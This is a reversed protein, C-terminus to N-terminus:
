LGQWIDKYKDKLFPLIEQRPVVVTMPDLMDAQCTACYFAMGERTLYVGSDYDSPDRWRHTFENHFDEPNAKIKTDLLKVLKDLMTPNLMSLTEIPNADPGYTYFDYIYMDHMGGTYTGGWNNLCTYKGNLMVRIKTDVHYGFCQGWSEEEERIDALRDSLYRSVASTIDLSANEKWVLESKIISEIYRNLKDVRAGSGKFVPYVLKVYCKDLAKRDVISVDYALETTKLTNKSAKDVAMRLRRRAVESQAHNTQDSWTQPVSRWDRNFWGLISVAWNDFALFFEHNFAYQAYEALEISAPDDASVQLNSYITAALTSLQLHDKHEQLMLATDLTFCAAFVWGAMPSPKAATSLLSGLGNLAQTGNISARLLAEPKSDLTEALTQWTYFPVEGIGAEVEKLASQFAPDGIMCRTKLTQLRQLALDIDLAKLCAYMSTLVNVQSSAEVLNSAVSLVTLAHNFQNLQSITRTELHFRGLGTQFQQLSLQSLRSAVEANRATYDLVDVSFAGAEQLIKLASILEPKSFGAEAYASTMAEVGFEPQLLMQLILDQYLISRKQFSDIGSLVRAKGTADIGKLLKINDGYGFNDIFSCDEIMGDIYGQLPYLGQAPLYGTWTCMVIMAIASLTLGPAKM